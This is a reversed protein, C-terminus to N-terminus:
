KVIQVLVVDVQCNKLFIKKGRCSELNRIEKLIMTYMETFTMVYFEVKKVRNKKKRLGVHDM